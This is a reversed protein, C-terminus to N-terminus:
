PQSVNVLVRGKRVAIVFEDAQASSSLTSNRSDRAEEFTFTRLPIPGIKDESLEIGDKFLTYTCVSKGDNLNVVRFDINKKADVPVRLERGAQVIEILGLDVYEIETTVVGENIHIVIDDAEYQTEKYEITWSQGESSLNYTYMTPDNIPTGGRFPVATFSVASDTKNTGHVRVGKGQEVKVRVMEGKSMEKNFPPEARAASPASEVWEPLQPKLDEPEHMKLYGVPLIFLDNEYSSEEINRLLMTRGYKGPMSIKLPYGLKMSTWVKALQMTDYKVVHVDCAYGEIDESGIKEKEGLGEMYKVAQFPDNILSQKDNSPMETYTKDDTFLIWTLGEEQDVLVVIERENEIQETRYKHEKVYLKSERKTGDHHVSDIMDAEFQAAALMSSLLLVGAFLTIILSKPENIDHMTVEKNKVM